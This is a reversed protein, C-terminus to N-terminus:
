AFVWNKQTVFTCINKNDINGVINLAFFGTFADKMPCIAQNEDIKSIRPM